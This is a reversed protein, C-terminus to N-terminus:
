TKNNEVEDLMINLASNISKVGGVIDFSPPSTYSKCFVLKDKKIGTNRSYVWANKVKGSGANNVIFPPSCISFFNQLNYSDTNIVFVFSHNSNYFISPTLRTKSDDKKYRKGSLVWGSKILPDGELYERYCYVYAKTSYKLLDSFLDKGNQAYKKISYHVTFHHTKKVENRIWSEWGDDEENM